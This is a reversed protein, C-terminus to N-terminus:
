AGPGDEDDSEPDMRVLLKSESTVGCMTDDAWEFEHM